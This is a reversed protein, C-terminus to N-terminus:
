EVGRGTLNLRAHLNGTRPCIALAAFQRDESVLQDAVVAVRGIQISRNMLGVIVANDIHGHVQLRHARCGIDAQHGFIDIHPELGLARPQGVHFVIAPVPHQVIDFVHGLAILLDLTIEPGTYFLDFRYAVARQGQVGNIARAM